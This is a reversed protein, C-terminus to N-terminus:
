KVLEVTIITEEVEACQQSFTVAEIYKASDDRLVGAKVLGDIAAKASIGDPDALRRRKSHVHICVRSHVEQDVHAATSGHQSDSEVDPASVAPRNDSKAKWVAYDEETWRIGSM